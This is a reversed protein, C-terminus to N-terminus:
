EIVVTLQIVMKDPKSKTSLQNDLKDKTRAEGRDDTRAPHHEATALLLTQGKCSGQNAVWSNKQKIFSRRSHICLGFQKDHVGYIYGSCSSSRDGDRVAKRHDPIGVLDAHELTSVDNFGASVAFQDLFSAPIPLEMFICVLDGIMMTTANSCLWFVRALLHYDVASTNAILKL